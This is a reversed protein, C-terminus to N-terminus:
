SGSQAASFPLRNGKCLFDEGISQQHIILRGTALGVPAIDRHLARQRNQIKRRTM